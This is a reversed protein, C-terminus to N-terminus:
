EGASQEPPQVYWRGDIKVLTHTEDGVALTGNDGDIAPKGIAGALRTPNPAEGEEPFNEKMFAFMEGLYGLHDIKEFLAIAEEPGGVPAQSEDMINPVGYRTLIAELKQGSAEIKATAEAKQRAAEAAAKAAEAKAAPDANEDELGAFADTIGDAMQLGFGQMAIMMAGAVTLGVSMEARAKPTMLAALAIPDGADAAAELRSVLEEPTAAGLTPRDAAVLLAPCLLAFSTSLAVISRM